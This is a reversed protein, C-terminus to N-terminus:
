FYKNSADSEDFWSEVGDIVYSDLLHCSFRVLLSYPQIWATEKIWRGIRRFVCRDCKINEHKLGGIYVYLTIIKDSWFRYEIVITVITACM